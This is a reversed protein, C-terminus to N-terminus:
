RTYDENSSMQTTDAAHHEETYRYKLISKNAEILVELSPFSAAKKGKVAFRKEDSNYLVSAPYVKNIGLRKSCRVAYITYPMSETNESGKHILFTGLPKGDLLRDVNSVNYLITGDDETRPDEVDTPDVFKFDNPKNPTNPLELSDRSRREFLQDDVPLSLTPPPTPPLSNRPTEIRPSIDAGSYFYPRSLPHAPDDKLSDVLEPLSVFWRVNNVSTAHLDCGFEKRNGAQRTRLRIKQVKTQNDKTDFKLFAIRLPYDVEGPKDYVFFDGTTGNDRMNPIETEDGLM